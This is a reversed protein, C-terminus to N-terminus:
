ALQSKLRRLSLPGGAKGHRGHRANAPKELGHPKRPVPATEAKGQWAAELKSAIIQPIGLGAVTRASRPKTTLRRTLESLVVGAAAAEERAVM